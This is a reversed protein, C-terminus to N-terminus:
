KKRTRYAGVEKALEDVEKPHSFLACPIGETELLHENKRIEEFLRSGLAERLSSHKLNNTAIDSVPCPTLDGSPTVHAFGRGASVCGGFFEEDGPSHIVYLKKNERYDLMKERFEKREETTLILESDGPTPIYEIFAGIVVGADILEDVKGEDMWYRFNRRDITVSLGTMVGEYSLRRITDIAADYTGEGRRADTMEKDGELSVLVATNKCKGLREYDEEKLATGNTVIIFFRDQFEACLDMLGPFMFPEGGAIVFGFVGLESAERIVSTWFNADLMKKSNINGAAAAYCGACFLNCRSTISLILFPPVKLDEAKAEARLGQTEKHANALRAFARLHGPHRMGWSLFIRSLNPDLKRLTRSWSGLM